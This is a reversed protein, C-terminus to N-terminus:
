AGSGRAHGAQTVIPRAPAVSVPPRANTPAVMSMRRHTASPTNDPARPSAHSSADRAGTTSSRPDAPAGVPVRGGGGSGDGFRAGRCGPAGCGPVASIATRSSSPPPTEMRPTVGFGIRHRAGSTGNSGANCEVAPHSAAGAARPGPARDIRTPAASGRAPAVIGPRREAPRSVRATRTSRHRPTVAHLPSGM